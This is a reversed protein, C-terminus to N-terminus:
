MTQSKTYIFIRYMEGIEYSKNCNLSTEGHIYQTLNDM